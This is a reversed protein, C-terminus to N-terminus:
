AVGCQDLAVVCLARTATLLESIPVHERPAHALAADGPGYHVTPIAGIGTLLRLDSGYPTGWTDQAQSSVSAHARAVTGVISADLDTMGSAFQGGWWTVEVPHQRLWPDAASVEAIADQLAARAKAV